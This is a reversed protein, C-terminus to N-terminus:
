QGIVQDLKRVLGRNSPTGGPGLKQSLEEFRLADALSRLLVEVPISPVHDVIFRGPAAVLATARGLLVAM